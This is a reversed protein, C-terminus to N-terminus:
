GLLEDRKADARAMFEEATIEGTWALQSQAKIETTLEAPFINDPWFITSPEVAWEQQL